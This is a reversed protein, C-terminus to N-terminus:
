KVEIIKHKTKGKSLILRGEVVDESSLTKNIDEVVTKNLKIGRGEIDKRAMSKSSSLQVQVLLDTLKKGVFDSTSLTLDSEGSGQNDFLAKTQNLALDLGEQGHVLLTLEQALATQPLRNQPAVTSEQLIKNIEELPKLSMMPLLARADADALNIFFQFFEFPSTKLASLWVNGKETKGFKTGDAKTILPLTMGFSEKGTDRRVLDIGLIINSFQDSGGIQLICNKTKFLHRFDEGQLLMYSFETFSIGQDRDELRTKISDRTLMQNVSVHKGVSRLFDVTSMTKFWDNEIIECNIFNKLSNQISQINKKVTAEDLLKREQSKFSPDGILATTSGMILLPTHGARQLRLMTILPLLSGVHLSDATPDFGCYFTIKENDLLSLVKDSTVQKILGRQALEESLKM